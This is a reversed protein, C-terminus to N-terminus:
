DSAINTRGGNHVWYKITNDVVLSVNFVGTGATATSRNVAIFPKTEGFKGNVRHENFYGTRAFGSIRDTPSFDLKINFNENNVAARTDVLGRLPAFDARPPVYDAAGPPKVAAPFEAM